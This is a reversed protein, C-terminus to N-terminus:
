HLVGLVVALQDRDPVAVPVVRDHDGRRPGLRHQTVGRHGHVGIVLPVPVTFTVGACSGFSKSIPWRCWSGLRVIMSSRATTVTGPGNSPRSRYSARGAITSASRSCPRM